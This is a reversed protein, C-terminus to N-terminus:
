VTKGTKLVNEVVDRSHQVLAVAGDTISLQSPSVMESHISEFTLSHGDLIM